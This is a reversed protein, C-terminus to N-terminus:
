DACAGVTHASLDCRVRNASCYLRDTGCAGNGIMKGSLLHEEMIHGGCVSKKRVVGMRMTFPYPLEAGM